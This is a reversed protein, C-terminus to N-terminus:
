LQRDEPDNSIPADRADQWEQKKADGLVKAEKAFEDQEAKSLKKFEASIIQTQHTVRPTSPKKAFAAEVKPKILTDFNAKAFIDPARPQRPKKTVDIGSLQSLLAAYADFRGSSKAPLDRNKAYNYAM